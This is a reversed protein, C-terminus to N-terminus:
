TDVMSWLLCLLHHNRNDGSLPQHRYSLHAILLNDVWIHKNLWKPKSFAYLSIYCLYCAMTNGKCIGNSVDWQGTTLCEVKKTYVQQFNTNCVVACQKGVTLSNCESSIRGNEVVKPCTTVSFFLLYDLM